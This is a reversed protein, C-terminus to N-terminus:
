KRGGEGGRDDEGGESEEGEDKSKMFYYHLPNKIRRCVDDPRCLDPAERRIKECNSPFYWKSAGSNELKIDETLGMGLHYSVNMKELPQDEFFPPSCREAAQYILPVIEETLVKEDKVFDSIRPNDVRPPAIRAYSLFSTLLVCIGYNRSGSTVGNMVSTICPPFSQFSLKKAKGSAFLSAKFREKSAESLVQGIGKLREDVDVGKSKISIRAIYEMAEVAVLRSYLEILDLLSLLVLGGKIHWDTLKMEKYKLLPLFTKWPVGYKKYRIGDLAGKRRQTDVTGKGGRIKDPSQSEAFIEKKDFVVDGLRLTESDDDYRGEESDTQLIICFGPREL